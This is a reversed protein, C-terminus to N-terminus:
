RALEAVMRNLTGRDSLDVIGSNRAALEDQPLRLTIRQNYAAAANWEGATVAYDLAPYNVIPLTPGLFDAEIRLQGSRGAVAMMNSFSLSQQTNSVTETPTGFRDCALAPQDLPALEYSGDSTLNLCFRGEFIELKVTGFFGEHKLDTLLAEYELARNDNLPIEGFPYHQIWAKSSAALNIPETSASQAALVPTSNDAQQVEAIEPATWSQQVQSPESQLRAVSFHVTGIWLVAALTTAITVLALQKGFAITGTTQPRIVTPSSIAVPEDDMQFRQARLEALLTKRHERLEARVLELIREEHINPATHAADRAAQPVDLVTQQIDPNTDSDDTLHHTRLLRKVDAVELTKPLVDVAGLARAQSVYLQGDQSTYMIVPIVATDPNSKIVQLAEFGDMGPMMHDLFIVDPRESRLYEIAVEASPAEDVAIGSEFLTRRLVTRAVASDDVILATKM